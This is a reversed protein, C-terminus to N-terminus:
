IEPCINIKLNSNEYDSLRSADFGRKKLEHKINRIASNIWVVHTKTYMNFTHLENSICTNTARFNTYRPELVNRNLFATEEKFNDERHQLVCNLRHEHVQFNLFQIAKKLANETLGSTLDDFYIVLINKANTIWRIYFYEWHQIISHVFRDWDKGHPYFM